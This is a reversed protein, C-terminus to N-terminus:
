PWSSFCATPSPPIYNTASRPRTVLVTKQRYNAAMESSCFCVSLRCGSSHGYESFQIVYMRQELITAIGFYKWVLTPLFLYIFQFDSPQYILMKHFCTSALLDESLRYQYMGPLNSTSCIVKQFDILQYGITVSEKYSHQNKVAKFKM